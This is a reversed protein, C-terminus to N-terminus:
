METWISQRNKNEEGKLELKSTGQYKDFIYAGTGTDHLSVYISQNKL